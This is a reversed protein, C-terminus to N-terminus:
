EHLHDLVFYDQGIVPIYDFDPLPQQQHNQNNNDDNNGPDHGLPLPGGQNNGPPMGGSGGGSSTGNGEGSPMEGFPMGSNM